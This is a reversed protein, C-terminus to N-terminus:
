IQRQAAAAQNCRVLVSLLFGHASGWGRARFLRTSRFKPHSAWELLRDGHADATHEASTTHTAFLEFESWDFPSEMHVAHPPPPVVSNVPWNGPEWDPEGQRLRLRMCEIICLNYMCICGYVYMYRCSVIIYPCIIHYVYM